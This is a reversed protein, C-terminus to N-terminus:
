AAQPVKYNLAGALREMNREALVNADAEFQKIYKRSRDGLWVKHIAPLATTVFAKISAQNANHLNTLKTEASTKRASDKIHSYNADLILRLSGLMRESFADALPKKKNFAGSYTTEGIEQVKEDAEQVTLDGSQVMQRVEAVKEDQWAKLRNERAQKQADKISQKCETLYSDDVQPTTVSAKGSAKAGKSSASGKGAAKPYLNDESVFTSQRNDGQGFEVEYENAEGAQLAPVVTIIHGVTMEHEGEIYFGVQDGKGYRPPNAAGSLRAAKAAAAKAAAGKLPKAPKQAAVPAKAPAPAKGVPKKKGAAVPAPAPAPTKAPKGKAKKGAKKEAEKEAQKVSPAKRQAKKKDETKDAQQQAQEVVQEAKTATKEVKAITEEAKEAARNAQAAAQDAQQQLLDAQEATRVAEADQQELEAIQGDMKNLMKLINDRQAELKPNNLGEAIRNRKARLEALESM